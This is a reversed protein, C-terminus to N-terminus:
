YSHFFHQLLDRCIDHRQQTGQAVSRSFFIQTPLKVPSFKVPFSFVLILSFSPLGLTSTTPHDVPPRMLQSLFSSGEHGQMSWKSTMLTGLFLFYGQCPMEIQSPLSDLSVATLWWYGLEQCNHICCTSPPACLADVVHLMLIWHTLWFVTILLVPTSM